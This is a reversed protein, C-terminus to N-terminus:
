VDICLNDYAATIGEFRAIYEELEDHPKNYHNFHTLILHKIGFEEKLAIAEEVSLHAQDERPDFFPTNVIMVDAGALLSRAYNSLCSDSDAAHVVKRQNECLVLGFCPVNHRVKFPIVHFNNFHLAIGPHMDLHFTIQPLQKGWNVRILRRYLHPEVLLDIGEQWYLFEELGASHDYHEHTLFIGNIKHVGNSDLQKRIDPPTDMLLEYGPLSFLVASRQRVLRGGEERAQTCHSCECGMAPIGEAAGTGLFCIRM